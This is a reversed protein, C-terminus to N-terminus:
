DRSALAVQATFRGLDGAIQTSAPIRNYLELAEHGRGAAFLLQVTRRVVAPSHQGLEIARLYSAILADRQEKIRSDDAKAKGREELEQEELEAQATLVPAWGARRTKLESLIGQADIRLRQAAAKENSRRAQWLLYRAQFYRALSGEIREIAQINQEIEAPKG